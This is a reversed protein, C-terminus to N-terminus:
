PVPIAALIDDIIKETTINEAEAEYTLGIRHRMVDKCIAKVDDPIVFGRKMMFAHAKSALALNISARPSGGYSMLPRLRDLRYQEPYRTAFVIDIIYQEVKEDMYIDRVLSRATLIEHVSVVQNIKPVDM